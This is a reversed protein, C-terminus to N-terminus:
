TGRVEAIFPHILNLWAGSGAAFGATRRSLVSFVGNVVALSREVSKLERTLSNCALFYRM